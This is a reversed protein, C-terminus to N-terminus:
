ELRGPGHHKKLSGLTETAEKVKIGGKREVQWARGRRQGEVFNRSVQRSEPASNVGRCLFVGLMGYRQGSGLGWKAIEAKLDWPNAARVSVSM